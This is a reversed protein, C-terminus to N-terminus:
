HELGPTMHDSNIFLTVGGARLVIGWIADSPVAKPLV